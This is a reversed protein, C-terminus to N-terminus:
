NGHHFKLTVNMGQWCLYYASCDDQNPIFVRESPDGNDPCEWDFPECGAARPDVCSRTIRSFHLEDPCTLESVEEGDLCLIYKECNRPHSILKFGEDPCRERDSPPRNPPRRNGPPRMNPIPLRPFFNQPFNIGEPFPFNPFFCGGFDLSFIVLILM